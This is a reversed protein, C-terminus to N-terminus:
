NLMALIQKHGYFEAVDKAGKGCGDIKTKDAKNQLLMEVNAVNGTGAAVMLPTEGNYDPEDVNVHATEVLYKAVSTHENAVALHLASRGDFNRYSTNAGAEVLMKVARKDGRVCATCLANNGNYYKFGTHISRWELMETLREKPTENILTKLAEINSVSVADWVAYLPPVSM